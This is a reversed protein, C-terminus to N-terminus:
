PRSCWCIPSSCDQGKLVNNVYILKDDETLEGEFLDNVKQLIESLRIKERRRSRGLAPRRSCSTTARRRM